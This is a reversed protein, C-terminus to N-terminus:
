DIKSLAKHTDDFPVDLAQITITSETGIPNTAEKFEKTGIFGKDDLGISKANENRFNNYDKKLKLTIKQM